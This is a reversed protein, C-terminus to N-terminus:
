WRLTRGMGGRSMKLPAVLGQVEREDELEKKPPTEGMCFCKRVKQKAEYKKRDKRRRKNELVEAVGDGLELRFSSWLGSRSGRAVPTSDPCYKPNDGRHFVPKWQSAHKHPVPNVIFYSAPSASSTAFLHKRGPHIRHYLHLTKAPESLPPEPQTHGHGNGANRPDPFPNSAAM